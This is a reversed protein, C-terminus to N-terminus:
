RGTVTATTGDLRVVFSLHEALTGLFQECDPGMAFAATAYVDAWMLDPGIVTVSGLGTVPRGTAPDLIHSGRAATGSTAIGGTRLPVTALMRSRDAPDEIGLQWPPTDTRRCRVGVDGGANVLVDHDPLAGSLASTVREIAWGKVLGTPNFRRVGDPDPLEADFWGGTRAKAQGCLDAVERLWPDADAPALTGRRLRSLQSDAKYTSLLEDTRRLDAYLAGVADEVRGAGGAAREDRALPGRVHVSVPMGMVQEVWARRPQDGADHLGGIPEGSAAAALDPLDAAGSPTV